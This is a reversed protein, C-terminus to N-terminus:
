ANVPVFSYLALDSWALFELFWAVTLPGADVIVRRCSRIEQVKRIVERSSRASDPLGGPGVM